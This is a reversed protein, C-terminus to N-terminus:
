SLWHEPYNIEKKPKYPINNDRCFIHKAYDYRTEIIILTKKLDICIQELHLTISQNFPGFSPHFRSFWVLFWYASKLRALNWFYERQFKQLPSPTM